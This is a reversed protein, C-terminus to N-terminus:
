QHSLHKNIVSLGLVGPWYLYRIHTAVYWVALAMYWISEYYGRKKSGQSWGPSHYKSYDQVWHVQDATNWGYGRKRSELESMWKWSSYRISDPTMISIRPFQNGIKGKSTVICRALISSNHCDRCIPSFTHTHTHMHTHQSLSFCVCRLLPFFCFFSLSNHTHPPSPPCTYTCCYAHSRKFTHIYTHISTHMYIFIYTHIYIYVYVYMYIYIFYM